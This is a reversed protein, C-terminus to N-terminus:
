VSQIKGKGLAVDLITLPRPLSSLIGCDSKMVLGLYCVAWVLVAPVCVCCLRTKSHYNLCIFLRETKRTGVFNCQM